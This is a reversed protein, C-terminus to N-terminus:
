KLLTKLDKRIDEVKFGRALQGYKWRDVSDQVDPAPNPEEQAAYLVCDYQNDKWAYSIQAIWWHAEALKQRILKLLQLHDHHSIRDNTFDSMRCSLTGKELYDDIHVYVDQLFSHM